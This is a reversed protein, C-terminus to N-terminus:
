LKVEITQLNKGDLDISMFQFDGERLFLVKKKTKYFCFNDVHNRSYHYLLNAKKSTIDMVYLEYPATFGISNCIQSYAPTYYLSTDKRPNNEPAFRYAKEPSDKKFFFLGGDDGGAMGMVITNSDVESFKSINYSNLMSIQTIQKTKYNIGYLDTGHPQVTGVPSNKGMTTAKTFLINEEIFESFLIENILENGNTLQEMNTGDSNAICISEDLIDSKKRIKVFAIKKGDPSYKPSSYSYESDSKIITKPIGGEVPLEYISIGSNPVYCAFLIKKDDISIDFQTNIVKKEQEEKNQGRCNLLSLLISYILIRYIM